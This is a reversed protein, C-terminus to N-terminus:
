DIYNNLDINLRQELRRVTQMDVSESYFKQIYEARDAKQTRVLDSFPGIRPDYGLNRKDLYRMTHLIHCETNLPHADIEDLVGNESLANTIKQVNYDWVHFPFYVELDNEAESQPNWIYTRDRDTFEPEIFSSKIWSSRIHERSIRFFYRNTQEPSLGILVVPIALQSALKMVMGEIINSCEGCVTDFISASKEKYHEFKFRFYKEMFVPDISHRIIDLNLKKSVNNINDEVREPFFSHDIVIGLVRLKFREKLVMTLFSSDKGGSFGVAVDYYKGRDRAADLATDLEACHAKRTEDDVTKKIGTYSNDKCFQCLGDEHLPFGKYNHPIICKRCITVDKTTM